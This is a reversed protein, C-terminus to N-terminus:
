NQSLGLVPAVFLLPKEASGLPPLYLLLKLKKPLFASQHLEVM